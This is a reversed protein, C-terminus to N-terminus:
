HIPITFHITTGKNIESQICSVGKLKEIRSKMNKIGIGKNQKKSNFGKGDDNLNVTLRNRKISFSLSVKQARAYKVVNQLAEQLIRYLNVKILEDIESWGITEDIDLHYTFNGLRSKNELLQRLISSFDIESSNFNINLKHSVDRIEREIHQM